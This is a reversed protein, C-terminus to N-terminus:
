ISIDKKIIKKKYVPQTENTKSEETVEASVETKYNQLFSYRQTSCIKMNRYYDFEFILHYMKFYEMIFILFQNWKLEKKSERM